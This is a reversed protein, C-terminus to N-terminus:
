WALTVFGVLHKDALVWPNQRYRVSIRPWVGLSNMMNDETITIRSERCMLTQVHSIITFVDDNFSKLPTNM